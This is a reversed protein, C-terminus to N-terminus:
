RQERGPRVPNLSAGGRLVRDLGGIETRVSDCAGAAPLRGDRSGAEASLPLDEGSSPSCASGRWM